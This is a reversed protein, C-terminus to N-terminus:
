LVLSGVLLAIEVPLVAVVFRIAAPRLAPWHCWSRGPIAAAIGALQHILPMLLVLVALSVDLVPGDAVVRYIVLGVLLLLPFVSGPALATGLVLLMMLIGAVSTVGVGPAGAMAVGTAGAAAAGLALRLVWGPVGAGGGVLWAGLPAGAPAGTTPSTDREVTM